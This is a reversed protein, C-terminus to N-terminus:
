NAKETNKGYFQLSKIDRAAQILLYLKKKLKQLMLFFILVM